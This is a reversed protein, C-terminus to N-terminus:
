AVKKPQAVFMECENAWPTQFVLEAIARCTRASRAGRERQGIAFENRCGVHQAEAGFADSGSESLDIQCDRDVRSNRAVAVARGHALPQRLEAGAKM